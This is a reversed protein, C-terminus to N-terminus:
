GARKTKQRLTQLSGGLEIHRCSIQRCTEFEQCLTKAQEVDGYVKWLCSYKYRRGSLAIFGVVDVPPYGLFFGIEHPFTDSPCGQARQKLTHLMEELPADAPYGLRELVGRTVCHTLSLELLACDYALCVKKRRRVCLISLELGSEQLLAKAEFFQVRSIESSFLAAPKKELLVAGCFEALTRQVSLGM